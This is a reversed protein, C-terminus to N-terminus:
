NIFRGIILSFLEIITALIVGVMVFILAIVVCWDILFSNFSFPFVTYIFYLAIVAFSNLIIKMIHHLWEPSYILLIANGIIAAIISLNIIWLIDNLTNTIFYVQWNLLNNFIYLLIINIVIAIIYESKKGKKKDRKSFIKEIFDPIKNEGQNM